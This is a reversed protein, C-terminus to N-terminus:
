LKQLYCKAISDLRTVILFKSLLATYEGYCKRNIRKTYALGSINLERVGHRDKRHNLWGISESDKPEEAFQM